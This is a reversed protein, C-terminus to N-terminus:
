GGDPCGPPAGPGFTCLTCTGQVCRPTGAAACPCANPKVGATAAAYKAADGKNITSNSCACGGTCITGTSVLTCDGDGKCTTDFSKLDVTVCAAGDGAATGDNGSAGDLGVADHTAADGGANGDGLSADQSSLDTTTSGGCAFVVFVAFISTALATLPAFPRRM